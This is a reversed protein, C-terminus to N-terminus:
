KRKLETIKGFKEQWVLEKDSISKLTVTRGPGPAGKVQTTLKDGEIKYTAAFRATNGDLKLMMTLDGNKAFKFTSGEQVTSKDGKTVEWTGVILKAFDGTEQALANGGVVCVLLSALRLRLSVM